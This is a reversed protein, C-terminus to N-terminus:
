PSGTRHTPSIGELTARPFLTWGAAITLEPESREGGRSREVNQSHFKKWLHVGYSINDCSRADGNQDSHQTKIPKDVLDLLLHIRVQSIELFFQIGVMAYALICGILYIPILLFDFLYIRPKM